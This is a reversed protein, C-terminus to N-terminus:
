LGLEKTQALVMGWLEVVKLFHEIQEEEFVLVPELPVSQDVAVLLEVLQEVAM